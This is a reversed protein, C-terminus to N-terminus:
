PNDGTAVIMRTVGEGYDNYQIGFNGPKGGTWVGNDFRAKLSESFFLHVTTEPRGEPSYTDVLQADLPILQGAEDHIDDVPVPNEWQREIYWIQQNHFLVTYDAYKTGFVDPTGSGYQAEWETQHLGLGGSAYTTTPTPTATATPFPTHTPSPTDTNTPIPTHTPPSTPTHTSTDTATPVATNTAVPTNTSTPTATETVTAEILDDPEQAAIDSVALPEDQTALTNTASPDSTLAAFGIGVVVYCLAALKGLKGRNWLWIPLLLPWIFIWALIKGLLKM